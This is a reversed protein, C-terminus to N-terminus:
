QLVASLKFQDNNGSQQAKCCQLLVASMNQHNGKTETLELEASLLVTIAQWIERSQVGLARVMTNAPSGIKCRPTLTSGRRAECGLAPSFVWPQRLFAHGFCIVQIGIYYYYSVSVVM